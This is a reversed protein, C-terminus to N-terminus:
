QRIIRETVRENQSIIQMIYIGNPHNNINIRQLGASNSGKVIVRGSADALMYSYSKSADVLIEDHVLTSITFAKSSQINSKLVIVNSYTNEDTISTVKLRYFINAKIFPDYTFKKAATSVDTLSKFNRGDTSIEIDVLKVPEDSIINWNLNHRSDDVNGTLAIDHIPTTTLPSFLGSITYSGLSGYNSSFSNGTGDLAVYYRGSTLTTDLVVDLIDSPDYVGITQMQSNLLTVKIDLDAGNDNPGVSFPLASLHLSGTQPLDLQFVDKDGTTSIIGSVSFAKNNIVMPTPNNNPDNSHDDTRYSFGNKTTIITLNDQLSNCGGPTPGNSWGTHNKYYSNGMIPAWGTEGTGDGDNYTALLTCNNDYKSQHSLGVTHGSEHSCSEAVTKPNFPGLRDTFVFAPTDDGWTFSGVFAVGGVGQYWASTTTVIIRIRQALPAALFVTSDTTINVNFPRYDESVRNFIETIQTDNMGSPACNLPNGGNWISSTVYHGDFDLFITAQATPLSSLKPLALLSLSTFATFLILLTISKKM